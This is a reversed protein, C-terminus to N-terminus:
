RRSMSFTIIIVVVLIFIIDADAVCPLWLLAVFMQLAVADFTDATALHAASRHMYLSYLFTCLMTSSTLLLITCDQTLLYPLIM